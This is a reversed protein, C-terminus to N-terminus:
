TLAFIAFWLLAGIVFTLGWGLFSIPQQDVRPSSTNLVGYMDQEMEVSARHEVPEVSSKPQLVTDNVPLDNKNKM